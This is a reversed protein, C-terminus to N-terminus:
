SYHLNGDKAATRGAISHQEDSVASTHQNVGSEARSLNGPAHVLEALISQRAAPEAVEVDERCWRAALLVDDDQRAAARAFEFKLDPASGGRLRADSEPLAHAAQLTVAPAYGGQASLSGTITAARVSPWSAVAAFLQNRWPM